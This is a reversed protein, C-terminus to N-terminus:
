AVDVSCRDFPQQNSDLRPLPLRDLDDYRTIEDRTPLLASVQTDLAEAVGLLERAFWPREGHVKKSVGTQTLGLRTALQGQTMRRRWMLYHIREGILQDATAM